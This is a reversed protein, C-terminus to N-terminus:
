ESVSGCCQPAAHVSQGPGVFPFPLATQPAPPLHPTVHLEDYVAHETPLPNAHSLRAESEWFQPAHPCLQSTAVIPLPTATPVQAAVPL